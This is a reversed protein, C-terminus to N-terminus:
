SRLGGLANGQADRALVVPSTSTVQIPTGIPPPTGDRVWAELDHYATQLFWHHPGANVPNTCAGAMPNRMFGFMQTAGSGDGIDNQGVVITYSDAHSTGAMEWERFKATDPQRAGLNGIVDTEAQLVMVPVDLDDRIKLPAPLPVDPLPSQTLRAGG